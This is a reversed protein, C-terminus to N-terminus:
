ARIWRQCAEDRSGRLFSAHAVRGVTSSTNQLNTIKNLFKPHPHNGALLINKFSMNAQCSSVIACRGRGCICCSRAAHESDPHGGSPAARALM